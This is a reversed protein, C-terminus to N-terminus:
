KKVPPVGLLKKIHAFIERNKEVPMNGQFRGAFYNGACVMDFIMDVNKPSRMRLMDAFPDTASVPRKM